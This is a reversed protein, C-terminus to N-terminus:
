SRFIWWSAGCTRAIDSHANSIHAHAHLHTCVHTHMYTWQMHTNTHMCTHTPTCMCTDTHGHTCLHIHVCTHENCTYAHMHPTTYVYMHRHVHTHIPTRTHTNMAHTHMHIHPPHALTHPHTHAHPHTHVCTHTWQMQTHMHTHACMQTNTCQWTGVFHLGITLVISNEGCTNRFADSATVTDSTSFGQASTSDLIRHARPTELGCSLIFQRCTLASPWAPSVGPTERWYILRYVWTREVSEDTERTFSFSGTASICVECQLFFLMQLKLWPCPLSPLPCPRTPVSQPLWRQVGHAVGVVYTEMSIFVPSM